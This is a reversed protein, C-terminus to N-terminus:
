RTISMSEIKSLLQKLEEKLASYDANKAPPKAIAIFVGKTLNTSHERYLIDYLQRRLRNRDVARKYVKKGVVAAGHFHPDKAHILQISPSHYRRGCSFFRDFQAKTLRKKKPLMM